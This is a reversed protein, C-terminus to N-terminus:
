HSSDITVTSARDRVIRRAGRDAGGTTGSEGIGALMGVPSAVYPVGVSLYEIAKLGSKAEAWDGFPLPYVGIDMAQFDEKHLKAVPAQGTICLMPISDAWAAYLGTIM